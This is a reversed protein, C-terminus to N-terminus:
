AWVQVLVLYWLDAREVEGYTPPRVKIFGPAPVRVPLSLGPEYTEVYRAMAKETELVFPGLFWLILTAAM